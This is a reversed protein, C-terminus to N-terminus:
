TEVKIGADGGQNAVNKTNGGLSGANGSQNEASCEWGMGRMEVRIRWMERM